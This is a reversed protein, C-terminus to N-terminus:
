KPIEDMWTKLENTDALHLRSRLQVRAMAAIQAVTFTITLLRNRNAAPDDTPSAAVSELYRELFKRTLGIEGELDTLPVQQLAKKDFPRHHKSYLGHKIANANGPQGGSRRSPRRKSHTRPSM